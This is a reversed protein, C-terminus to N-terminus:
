KEFADGVHKVIKKAASGWTFKNAIGTGDKREGQFVARMKQKLDKKVPPKIKFWPEVLPELSNHGIMKWGANEVLFCNDDNAYELVGGTRTTITPLGCAMAESVTEEWAGGAQALVYSDCARYLLSMDRIRRNLLYVHHDKAYKKILMPIPKSDSYAKLILCADESKDFEECFAQILVEPCKREVWEFVSLFKFEPLEENFELSPGYKNFEPSIGHHVIKIKDKDCVTALSKMSYESPTMVLKCKEFVRGWPKPAQDFEFVTYYAECIKMPISHMISIRNDDGLMSSSAMWPEPFDGSTSDVKVDVGADRLSICYNRAAVGYGSQATVNSIWKIKM